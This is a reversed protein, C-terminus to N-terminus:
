VNSVAGGYIRFKRWTGYFSWFHKNFIKSKPSHKDSFPHENSVFKKLGRLGQRLNEVNVDSFIITWQAWKVLCTLFNIIKFEFSCCM